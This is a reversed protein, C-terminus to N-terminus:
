AILSFMSDNGPRYGNKTMQVHAAYKESAQKFARLKLTADHSKGFITDAFPDLKLEKSFREPVKVTTVENVFPQDQEDTSNVEHLIHQIQANVNEALRVDQASPKSSSLAANRMQELVQLTDNLDPNNVVPAGDHNGSAWKYAQEHAHVNKSTQQLDDMIAQQQPTVVETDEQQQEYLDQDTRGLLLNELELLLPNKKPQFYMANKRYADGAEKRQLFKKRNFPSSLREQEMSNYIKM